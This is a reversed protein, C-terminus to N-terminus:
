GGGLATRPNAAFAAVAPDRPDLMHAHGYAARAADLQGARVALDGVLTWTVFNGPEVRVAALLVGRAAAARDFRALGAAKVYYADLNDSDLRLSRNADAVAAAPNRRLEARANDLYRRALGSRLLSAGAVALVFAM